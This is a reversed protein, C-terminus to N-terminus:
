EKIVTRKETKKELDYEILTKINNKVYIIKNYNIADFSVPPDGPFKRAMIDSMIRNWKTGDWELFVSRFAWVGGFAIIVMKTKEFIKIQEISRTDFSIERSWVTDVKGYLESLVWFRTEGDVVNKIVM